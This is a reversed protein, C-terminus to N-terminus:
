RQLEARKPPPLARPEGGGQGTLEMEAILVTPVDWTVPFGGTPGIQFRAAGPSGDLTDIPGAGASAAVIDRLARRDVGSFQLGRVPVERGDAYVRLAEYPFTLGPLPGEGSIGIDLSESLAPPLLRRIVLYYDRGTQAALRLARKRLAAPAVLHNPTVIVVGPVAARRDSGISRGHGTSGALDRRPIRSMLLDRLVGNKVLEVRRPATGEHDFRYSGLGRGTTPDDVVTWGDPLLRRGIRATPTGNTDLPGSREQEIPPTGAIESPLLQSFLEQSAPGEFLVPGLYDEEIPAVRLATLWKGLDEVEARMTPVDPLEEVNRVIWSRSDTVTSGDPLRSTGEVRFVTYGTPMSIETGETTVVLRRGQWDRGVAQAVEVDPFAALTGSLTRVLEAVKDPTAAADPEAGEYRVPQGPVRDPPRPSPDDRRSAEKRSLQEVAQKYAADTALWIERRLALVNDEVPLQRQMIGDPEGFAQFNSSDLEPTGARVEVRLTRHLERHSSVLDGQEAFASHVVGDLIDYSVFYPAPTDPLHLEPARQLELHVAEELPEAALTSLVLAIM